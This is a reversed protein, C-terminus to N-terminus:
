ITMREWDIATRWDDADHAWSTLVRQTAGLDAAHTRFHRQASGDRHEIVWGTDDRVTQIFTQGSRDSPREIILFEEDGRAVATLLALLQDPSPDDWTAPGGTTARVSRPAQGGKLIRNLFGM